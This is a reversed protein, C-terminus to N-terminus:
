VRGVDDSRPRAHRLKLRTWSLARHSRGADPFVQVSQFYFGYHFGSAVSNGLRGAEELMKEEVAAATSGDVSGSSKVGTKKM